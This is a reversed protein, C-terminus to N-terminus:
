DDWNKIHDPLDEDAVSRETVVRGAVSIGKRTMADQSGYRLPHWAPLDKGESLLRYACTKPMWPLADLKDATLLICDPVLSKREAYNGCRATRTNLLWCAVDTYSVDGSDADELKVLCCKGCGDCLSEWEELSMQPLTKRRWFPEQLNNSRSLEAIPVTVDQRLTIRQATDSRFSRM